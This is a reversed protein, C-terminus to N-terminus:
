RHHRLKLGLWGVGILILVGGIWIAPTGRGGSEPLLGPVTVTEQVPIEGTQDSGVVAVNEIRTGPPVDPRVRVTITLTASYGAGLTGITAVVRNGEVTVEGQTVVADLVELEAPVGDVITVGTAAQPGRNEVVISFVVTGGPSVLTRDAEKSVRLEVGGPPPSPTLGPPTSTPTPTFTSTATPTDTPTMGALVRAGSPQGGGWALVLLLGLVLSVVGWVIEKRM